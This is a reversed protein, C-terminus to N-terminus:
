FDVCSLALRETAGAERGPGVRLPAAGESGRRSRLWGHCGVSPATWDDYIGQFGLGGV